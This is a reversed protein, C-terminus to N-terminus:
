QRRATIQACKEGRMLIVIDIKAVHFALAVDFARDFDCDGATVVNQHDARGAGAFRHERFPDGVIMGGIDSSSAISVVFIWLTAPQEVSSCDNTAVRREARRM